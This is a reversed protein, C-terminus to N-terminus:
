NLFVYILFIIYIVTILSYTRALINFIIINISKGACLGILFNYLIILYINSQQNLFSSFPLLSIFIWLCTKDIDVLMKHQKSVLILDNREHKYLTIYNRDNNTFFIRPNLPSHEM